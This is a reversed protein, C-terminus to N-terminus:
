GSNQGLKNITADIGAFRAKLQSLLTAMESKVEALEALVNELSKSHRDIELKARVRDSNNRDVEAQILDVKQAILWVSMRGYNDLLSALGEADAMLQQVLPSDPTTM